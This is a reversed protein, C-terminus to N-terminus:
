LSPSCAYRKILDKLDTVSYASKGDIRDRAVGAKKLHKSLLKPSIPEGRFWDIFESDQNDEVLIKRLETANIWNGQRTAIVPALERLIRIPVPDQEMADTASVEEIKTYAALCKKPWDGGILNAVVFLPEWNDLARDNGMNPIIPNLTQAKALNDEAWRAIKSRVIKQNEFFLLPVKDVPQELLKREMQIVISRDTMTDLQEGIGAMCKPGFVNFSRVKFEEGIKETRPVKATRKTHGANMIGNLEENKALYRDVEDMVLTPRYEEIVRFLAASTINACMYSRASWAEVLVLLRNKGSRKTLSKILLHPMVTWANLLWTSLCWLTIAVAYEPHKLVVHKFIRDHLYDAMKIPDPQESCPITFEVLEDTENSEIIDRRKAVQKDLVKVRLNLEKAAETRKTEYELPTLKSLEDIRDEALANFDLGYKQRAGDIMKQVQNRTQSLTFGHQTLSDTKAHIEHDSKGAGVMQKTLLLLSKNWEGSQQSREMLDTKDKHVPRKTDPPTAPNSQKAQLKQLMEDPNNLM